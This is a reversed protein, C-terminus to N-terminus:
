ASPQYLEQLFIYNGGGVIGFATQITDGSATNRKVQLKYTVTGASGLTVGNLDDIFTGNYVSRITVGMNSGIETDEFITTNYNDGASTQDISRLVKFSLTQDFEPSSIFNAKFEMKIYSHISLPTRTASWNTADQYGTEDVGGLASLDTNLSATVLTFTSFTVPLQATNNATTLNGELTLNRITGIDKNSDLVLAKSAAATGPTVSDLVGLEATTITTSDLTISTDGTITGTVALNGSSTIAGCGVTGLGSVNGDTDFTYNGDTFVGDITLNRITGVDKNADLVLAKSAAATGPTVSDLVGLEATTITTSDLTISTDATITGTVALNGSSTIAGCGVTGLGSVNGDTDFTYNGDTFVGDITLNRITGVDKNADLVLAKSAAATGPTVSDLVGLEATTITTSDLTISTDATITGTININNNFEFEGEDRYVIHPRTGSYGSTAGLILGAGDIHSAQTGTKGLVIANDSIEVITSNVTTTTGMINLNGKITLVGSSDGIAYPDIIIENPSASAYIEGGDPNGGNTLKIKDEITVIRIGTVDKNADLVLAKSAAATGPTVSDLVGLEATTITTSDLTISTDGTITGTVALNGSSTIAGCGVTGLGSVNGDTDFTYNGDTFVGDITLNRITGVDKNADLVLAKSAAATGPTVSDLVGLEATTITTSDLTISTDATITGTVALNGSSTIAGCGVTGLGSVNGDTDFTYNGDTFVGDITLNRITGVDKNADLVLAKSAAATGPTVSDLVGLEATTITTSDLTISTDATITGTVALNGSSTIAGCGVTGLGSVNGDTDFTYNGDTFVGDITLNRITGVDKNADLVLAKSAAATGPTVSDLVGLEATTITTSDLTISTDATITGTVALNGSSTIAGCGVTGLGSVNGDTDFTYNGDTFVGDITLNRITGVDKNADLVLAKSATATGPTVDVYNLEAATSTVLTGALKLGNTGDHSAINIDDNFTKIGSVTQDTTRLVVTDGSAVAQGKVTFTGSIDVNGNNCLDIVSASNASRLRLREGVKGRAESITFLYDDNARNFVLAM